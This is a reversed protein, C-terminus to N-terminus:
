IALAGFTLHPSMLHALTIPNISSQAALMSGGCDGIPSRSRNKAASSPISNGRSSWQCHIVISLRCRLDLVGNLAWNPTMNRPAKGGVATRCRHRCPAGMGGGFVLVSRWLPLRWDRLVWAHSQAPAPRLWRSCKDWTQKLMKWVSAWSAFRKM